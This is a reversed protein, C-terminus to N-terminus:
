LCMVKMSNGIKNMIAIEESSLKAANSNLHEARKLFPSLDTYLNVTVNLGDNRVFNTLSNQFARIDVKATNSYVAITNNTCVAAQACIVKDKSTFICDYYTNCNGAIHSLQEYLAEDAPKYPLFMCLSVAIKAVPLASVTALVTLYNVKSKWIIIGTILIIAIIAIGIATKIGQTKRKYKIYGYQCKEVKNINKM